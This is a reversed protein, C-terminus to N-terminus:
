SFSTCQFMHLRFSFDTFLLTLVAISTAIYFFDIRAGPVCLLKNSDQNTAETKAMVTIVLTVWGGTRDIVELSDHLSDHRPRPPVWRM